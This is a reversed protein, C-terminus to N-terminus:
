TWAKFLLYTNFWNVFTISEVKLLIWVELYFWTKIEFVFLLIIM